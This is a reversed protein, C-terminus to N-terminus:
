LSEFASLFIAPRGGFLYKSCNHVSEISGILPLGNNSSKYLNCSSNFSVLFILSFVTGPSDTSVFHISLPGFLTPPLVFPAINSGLSEVSSVTNVPPTEPPKNLFILIDSGLEWHTFISPIGSFMGTDEM